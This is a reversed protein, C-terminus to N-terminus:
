RCSDGRLVVGPHAGTAAGPVPGVAHRPRNTRLGGGRDWGPMPDLVVDRLYDRAGLRREGPELRHGRDGGTGVPVAHGWAPWIGPLVVHVLGPFGHDLIRAQVEEM